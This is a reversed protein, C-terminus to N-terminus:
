PRATRARKASTDLSTSRQDAAAVAQRLSDLVTAPAAARMASDLSTRAQAAEALAAAKTADLEAAQQQFGVGPEAQTRNMRQRAVFLMTGTVITFLGVGAWVAARSRAPREVKGNARALPTASGPANRPRTPKRGTPEDPPTERQFVPQGLPPTPQDTRKVMEGERPAPTKPPASAIRPAAARGGTPGVSPERMAPPPSSESGPPAAPVIAMNEVTFAPGGPGLMIVDGEKLPTAGDTKTGNVYTGHRSGGDRLTVEGNVVSIETHVRSVSTASEGEVRILCELARGITIAEGQGSIRAGSQVGRLVIRLEEGAGIDRIGPRIAESRATPVSGGGVPRPPPASELMTAAFVKGVAERVSLQTGTLGLGIVDGVALAQRAGAALKRAALYTGNRSGADEVYWKDDDFFFRAHRGSVTKAEDGQLFTGCAPDRGALVETGDVRHSKGSGKEALTHHPM